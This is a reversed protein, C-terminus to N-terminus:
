LAQQHLAAQDDIVGGMKIAQGARLLGIWAPQRVPLRTRAISVGSTRDM